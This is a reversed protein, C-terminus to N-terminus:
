REPEAVWGTVLILGTEHHAAYFGFPRDLTVRLTKRTKDALVFAARTMGVATVAAAEFGTASFTAMAGQRAEDLLLRDPSIGPFHHGLSPPPEAAAQLGFLPSALLDHDARVTFRVTEVVLEPRSDSAQTEAVTLGPANFGLSLQSGRVGSAMAPPQGAPPAATMGAPPAATMGAPPAATMGAPPAATTAATMAAPLIGSPPRDREGVVLYVDIGNDGEVRLRTIPGAPTDLVTVDDLNGTSRKLGPLTGLRAWPGSAATMPVDGFPAVWLTRLALATALVLVTAPKVEVPMTGILGGTKESAWADLRKKDAAADGSLRDVVGPPLSETWQPRLPLDNRAWLGLAAGIGPLATLGVIVDLGLDHATTTPVGLADQLKVRVSGTAAASLLALLPWACAASFVTSGTPPAQVAWRSSFRNIAEISIGDM